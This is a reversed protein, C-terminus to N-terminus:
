DNCHRGEYYHFWTGIIVCIFFLLLLCIGATQMRERGGIGGREEQYIWNQLLMAGGRVSWSCPFFQWRGEGLGTLFLASLLFQAVGVCQSVMGSFKLNLFLHELYLPVAGLFLVATLQLYLMWPIQVAPNREVFSGLGAGFLLVAAAISLFGMGTLVCFKTLFNKWRHKNMGLFIQFHNEEELRINGSCVVSIVFPLAVGIAEVYGSLLGPGSRGAFWGYALFVAVGLLPIGLHLPYLVTHRMKWLEARIEGLFGRM